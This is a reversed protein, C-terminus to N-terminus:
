RVSGTVRIQAVLSIILLNSLLTCGVLRSLSAGLLRRASCWIGFRPCANLKSHPPEWWSREKTLEPRLRTTQWDLGARLDPRGRLCMPFWMMIKGKGHSLISARQSLEWLFWGGFFIRTPLHTSAPPSLLPSFATTSVISLVNIIERTQVGLVHIGQQQLATRLIPYHLARSFPSRDIARHHHVDIVNTSNFIEETTIIEM